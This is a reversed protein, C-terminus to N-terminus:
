KEDLWHLIIAAFYTSGIASKEGPAVGYGGDDNRCKAVFARLKSTSDPREKIMQYCRMVRYTTELDSGVVGAKGFASDNRQGHDLFHLVRKSDLDKAGMRLLAVTAGGTDRAVEDGKGFSGDTNRMKRVQEIWKENEPGKKDIAEFGAVAIRIDEFTKVNEDLYKIAGTEYAETPIKLEVLAMLGVATVAVGPKGGPEDAFGGSAKDHCKKVFDAAAARDPVEGGFYKLARLASSTARLSSTEVAASPRFGGDKNQLKQLYAITAKKQEPTQGHIPAVVFVLVIGFPLIRKM